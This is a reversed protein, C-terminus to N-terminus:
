IISSKDYAMRVQNADAIAFNLVDNLERDNLSERVWAGDWGFLKWMEPIEWKYWTGHKVERIGLGHHYDIVKKVHNENRFDGPNLSKIYVPYITPSTERGIDGSYIRSFRPDTSFAIIGRGYPKEKVRFKNITNYPSGHYFRIPNGNSDILKSGKFWKKFSETQSIDENIPTEILEHIKM